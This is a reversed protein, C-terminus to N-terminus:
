ALNSHGIDKELMERERERERLYDLPKEKLPMRILVNVFSLRRLANELVNLPFDLSTFFTIASCFRAIVKVAEYVPLKLNSSTVGM